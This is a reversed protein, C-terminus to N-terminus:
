GQGATPGLVLPGANPATEATAKDGIGIRGQAWLEPHTCKFARDRQDESLSSPARM